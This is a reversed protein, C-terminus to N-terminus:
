PARPDAISEQLLQLPESFASDTFADDGDRATSTLHLRRVAEASLQNGPWLAALGQYLGLFYAREAVASRTIWALEPNQLARAAADFALPIEPSEAM